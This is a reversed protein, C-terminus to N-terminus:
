GVDAAFKAAAASRAQAREAIRAARADDEAYGDAYKKAAAKFRAMTEKLAHLAAARDAKFHERLQEARWPVTEAALLARRLAERGAERQVMDRAIGSQHARIAGLVGAADDGRLGSAPGLDPLAATPPAAAAVLASVVGPAALASREVYTAENLACRVGDEADPFAPTARVKGRDREAIGKRLLAQTRGSYGTAASAAAAAAAGGPASM